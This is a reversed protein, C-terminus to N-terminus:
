KKEPSKKGPSKDDPPGETVPGGKALSALVGKIQEDEPDVGPLTGLVASLFGPDALVAGM